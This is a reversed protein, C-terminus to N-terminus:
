INSIHSLGRRFFVSWCSSFSAGRRVFFLVKVVLWVVWRIVKDGGQRGKFDKCGRGVKYWCWGGVFGGVVAVGQADGRARFIIEFMPSTQLM